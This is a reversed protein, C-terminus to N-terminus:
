NVNVGELIRNGKFSNYSRSCIVMNKIDGIEWPPIQNVFGYQIPIIHDITRYLPHNYKNQDIILEADTYYCRGNWLSFLEKIHKRTEKACQIKYRKFESFRSIPTWIKKLEMKSRRNDSGLYTYSKFKKICSEKAKDKVWPVQMINEVGYKSFIFAKFRLKESPDSFRELAKKSIKDKIYPLEVVSKVGYKLLNSNIRKELANAKAEDTWYNKRKQNIKEKNNELANIRAQKVSEIKTSCAVGFKKFVTDKVKQKIEINQSAYACGYRKLNTIKRKELIEAKKIPDSFRKKARESALNSKKIKEYFDGIKYTEIIGTNKNRVTITEDYGICKYEQNFRIEGIRKQEVRAWEEDRGPVSDWTIESRIFDDTTGVEPEPVSEQWMRYFQNMGCPTSTIIVKTTKGSSVTPFVSAIFDDAIHPKVFAFEDLFITNIALGRINDPSTASVIIRTGHSFEVSLKSWSKVGPQLWYPLHLYSERLLQLQEKALALKNGLMAILKNESFIAYWLLYARTTSSKGCQRPFKVINFRHQDFKRVLDEQFDWMKFLQTGEDKTTIYVYTKIFYIPDLACKRLEELQWPLMKVREDGRLNMIGSFAM